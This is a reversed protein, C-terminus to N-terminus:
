SILCRQGGDKVLEKYRDFLADLREEDSTFPKRRFLGDVAVDIARHALRLDDPMSKPDYLSSITRESHHERREIVAFALDDLTRKQGSSLPPCPFTNYCITSSYRVREELAGAVAKVWVMHMKSSVLAFLHPEADYIAFAADSIVTREDLFGSPIYERKESSTKPVLLSTGPKHARQALKHSVAAYQRTTKADSSLRMERVAEIRKRIPTIRMALELHEDEIWLCVRPNSDIFEQTGCFDRTLIRADPFRTVLDVAEERSMILHGGDRPMSGSVMKPWGVLSSNAPHVVLNEGETLYPSINQVGKVGGAFHLRKEGRKGIPRLGVIVCTVGANGRASNSWKFAQHAFSIEATAWVRPWLIGVQQGQVISNTAVFAAQANKGEIFKAANLFWASVYDSDKFDQHGQFTHAMDMKQEKSQNRAGLYPPNGVVQVEASEDPRCVTTWETQLANACVVTGGDKLPLTPRTTGFVDKFEVNMQHEALWLSLKATEHAFDDIEIGYFQSTVLRSMFRATLQKGHIRRLAEIEIRALEKYAIVLFNGSGCAPDFVRMNYIRDLLKQLKPRSDGAADLQERLEDLFLPDLVKLINTVSTYHMGLGDRKEGHVVAQMMSGLIDPNIAKWNLDGADIIMRRSKSSFQPPKIKQAFLGGNVYPFDQLFRPYQSRDETNLVDFLRSLYSQLDEGSEATHSAVANTFQDPAFIGTDEAFFCFLLRALFVNLEHRQAETSFENEQVILDYLRGMREAAKVDAPNESRHRAKEMGAWPLFFDFHKPLERIEIDLSDGTKTDQALLGQLDTVVVFRISHRGVNPNKALESISEHLDRETEHRFAVKKKWLVEGDVKSLNYDGKKLRTLSAHPTEYAALVEWLFDIGEHKKQCLAAVAQEIQEIGMIQPRSRLM